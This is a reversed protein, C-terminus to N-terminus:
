VPLGTKPEGSVAQSCVIGVAVRVLLRFERNEPPSRTAAYESFIAELVALLAESKQLRCLALLGNDAKVYVANQVENVGVPGITVLIQLLLPSLKFYLKIYQFIISQNQAIKIQM